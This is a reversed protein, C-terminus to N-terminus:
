FEPKKKEAVFSSVGKTVEGDLQCSIPNNYSVEIRNGMLVLCRKKNKIHEGKFIAPFVKLTGIKGKGKYVLLSLKGDKDFRDQEPTPIMGGGYCKGNMCPTLWVDKFEYETGDIKIKANRPKYKGLVGSIAISAYSKPKLGKEKREDSVECCFGDIGYGVGNIFKKTVGNITCIPLNKIYKNLEVIRDPKQTDTVSYYFDNGSGSPFYYLPNKINDCDVSNIFVNLTGDGGAIVNKEDSNQNGFYSRLDLTTIDIFEFEDDLLVSKIIEAREKGNGNKSNPNYLVKYKSM